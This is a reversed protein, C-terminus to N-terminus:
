NPQSWSCYTQLVAQHRRMTGLLGELRHLAPNALKRINADDDLIQILLRKRAARDGVDIHNMSRLVDVAHQYAQGLAVVQDWQDSKARALMQGSIRAIAQYQQLISTSTSM